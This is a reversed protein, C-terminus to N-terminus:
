KKLSCSGTLCVAPKEVLVSKTKCKCDAPCPCPTTHGDGHKIVGNVCEGCCEQVPAPSEKTHIVYAANVAVSASLDPSALGLLMLLENVM